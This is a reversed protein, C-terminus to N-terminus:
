LQEEPWEKEWEHRIERLANDIDFDRPFYTEWRGAIESTPATSQGAAIVVVVDLPGEPVDPPLTIQLKRDSPMELRLTMTKVM